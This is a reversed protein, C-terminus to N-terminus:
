GILYIVLYTYWWQQYKLTSYMTDRSCDSIYVWGKCSKIWTSNPPYYDCHMIFKLVQKACLKSFHVLNSTYQALIKHSIVICWIGWLM